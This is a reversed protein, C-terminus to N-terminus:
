DADRPARERETAIGDPESGDGPRPRYERTRDEMRQWAGPQLREREQEEELPDKRVTRAPDTSLTGAIGILVVTQLQIGPSSGPPAPEIAGRGLQLDIGSRLSLGRALPVEALVGAAVTTTTVWGKGAPAESGAAPRVAVAATGHALRTTALLRLDRWKVGQVPRLALEATVSHQQGYAIRPGLSGVGFSYSGSARARRGVWTLGVRAEPSAAVVISAAPPAIASRMLTVGGSVSATFRRSFAHTDGVRATVATTDMPGRQLNAHEDVDLIAHEFHTQAVRLEPVILDRAGVEWSWSVEGRVTSADLGVADAVDAVLGGEQAYGSAIRLTSRRSVIAALSAGGGLGYTLRNGVQFPDIATAGEIARVGFRSAISGQADVGLQARPTLQWAGTGAGSFSGNATPTAAGGALSLGLAQAFRGGAHIGWTSSTSTAGADLALDGGTLLAGSGAGVFSAQIQEEIAGQLTADTQWLAVLIPLM